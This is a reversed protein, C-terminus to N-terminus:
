SKSALFPLDKSRSWPIGKKNLVSKISAVRREILQSGKKFDDVLAIVEASNNNASGRRIRGTSQEINNEDLILSLLILTDLRPVNFGKVGIKDTVFIPNKTPAIERKATSVTGTILGSEPFRRHMEELVEVRDGLVLINRGQSLCDRIVKEAYDYRATSRAVWENVARSSDPTTSRIEDWEHITPGLGTDLFNFHVPVEYSMDSFFIGGLHYFFIHSTGDSRYPTATLGIRTGPFKKLAELYYPAALIQAEDFFIQDWYTYFEPPLTTSQALSHVLGVCFRSGRWEQFGDGGILGIEKEPVGFIGCFEKQWQRQLEIRDVVVLTRKASIGAYYCSITTKGRGCALNLIGGHSNAARALARFADVQGRDRWGRFPQNKGTHSGIKPSLPHGARAQAIIEENRYPIGLAEVQNKSIYRRPLGLHTETEEFLYLFGNGAEDIKPLYMRLNNKLVDQRDKDLLHKPIWLLDKSVAFNNSSVPM